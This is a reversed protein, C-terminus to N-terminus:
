GVRTPRSLEVVGNARGAAVIRRAWADAVESTPRGTARSEDFITALRDPILAIAQRLEEETSGGYYELGCSIIGGANIVYDPAYVIGRDYLLQGDADCSLQNNAAGAIVRARLQPITEADFVNGLACPALVDADAFLIEDPPLESVPLEARIRELHVSNVDAVTLQAGAEHLHRCLQLGVSGV